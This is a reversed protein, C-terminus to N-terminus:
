FSINDFFMRTARELAAKCGECDNKPWSNFIIHQVGTDKGHELNEEAESLNKWFQQAEREFSEASWKLFRTPHAILLFFRRYMDMDFKAQTLEM